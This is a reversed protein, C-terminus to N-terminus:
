RRVSGNMFRITKPETGRESHTINLWFQLLVEGDPHKPTAGDRYGILTSKAIGLQQALQPFTFGQRRLSYILASWDTVYRKDAAANL